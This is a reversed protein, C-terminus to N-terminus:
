PCAQRWADLERHKLIAQIGLAKAQPCFTEPTIGTDTYEADFVAKGNQLFPLTLGCWGQDFCDETLAFDFDAALAEAQEADNKLGIALGRAHAERALFRNFALQDEYTLPFGTENLYGDVNDPEVGDFGKSKCLDLRAGLVPALLDVRRIDLWKEGEWGEYDNGIVEPPFDAADPRWDEWSGTSIYCIVRRGDRHLAAVTEAATDFADLDYVDVDFSTDIVNGSLQWQWTAAPVPKWWADADPTEAAANPPPSDTAAPRTGEPPAPPFLLSCGLSSLLFLLLCGRARM